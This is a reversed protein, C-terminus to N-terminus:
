PSPTILLFGSANKQPNKKAFCLPPYISQLYFLWAPGYQPDTQFTLRFSKPYCASYLQRVDKPLKIIMSNHSNTPHFSNYILYVLCIDLQKDIFFILM